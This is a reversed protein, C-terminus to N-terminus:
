EAGDTRLFVGCCVPARLPTGLIALINREVDTEKGEEAGMQDDRMISATELVQISV